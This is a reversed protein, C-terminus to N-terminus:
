QNQSCLMKYTVSISTKYHTQSTIALHANYNKEELKNRHSNRIHGVHDFLWADTCQPGDKARSPLQLYYSVKEPSLRAKATKRPTISRSCLFLLAFMVSLQASCFQSELKCQTHLSGIQVWKCMIKGLRNILLHWQARIYHIYIILWHVQEHLHWYFGLM